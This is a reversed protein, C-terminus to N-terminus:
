PQKEFFAVLSPRHRARWAICLEIGEMALAFSRPGGLYKTSRGDFFARAADRESAECLGGALWVLGAGGDKPLREVIANWNTKVFDLALPRTRFDQAAGWLLRMAERTDFTDTLVLPLHTQVIARDGSESLAGLLRGRDARDKELKAAELLRGHLASDGSDGALGLVVDVVDPHIAKRDTLWREALQRAAALVKPDKGQYGLMSLLAPRLLRTDEDEGPKPAWGLADLKKSFLRRVFAEHRPRLAEPLVDGAAYSALGLAAGLVHRDSEKAASQALGLAQSADVDGSRILASVDGLLGVREPVSLKPGAKTVMDALTAPGTLNARYYGDFRDNPQLWDPCTKAGELAFSGSAGELVACAQRVTGKEAWKVCAPVAWTRAADGTSGVPLSRKQTWTLTPAGGKPCALAFTVVPGGPQDLFTKFAPGVDRGAAASIASLFDDATANGWAHKALYARVGQQFRERGIFAEFMGIVSAGKGYTIGDFANAIDDNSRIPQRIQRANVLADAALAGNRRQVQQVDLGWTPQWAELIRPTMWTAFAENLWLDDWWAMTVLDGFWQHALEHTCVGAFGRQRSPTDVEPRSLILQHGYTVLGPNEMAGMGVPLAIQDLKDYPYPSGFYAELRELIPGSTQAAYAAEGAKGKPTVIRVPTKKQGHRGADVFDFPGVAVAVLYSPMPPSKAFRVRELGGAVPERSVEPMNALAAHGPKVLLAVEWPVKFAPEDFHPFARRADIPEFSTYAYWTDGEKLQFLGDNDKRSLVGSFTVTLAYAGPAITADPVLAAFHDDVVRPTLPRRVDQQALTASTLQLETANLWLVELPRSVEVQATIVGSFRDDGPVVTLELQYGTPRAGEPLRVGPSTLSPPPRSAPPPAAPLPEPAVSVKPAACGVLVLVVLTSTRM